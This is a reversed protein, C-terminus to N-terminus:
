QGEAYSPPADQPAAGWSKNAAPGMEFDLVGGNTLAAWDLWLRSHLQGNVRLQQVYPAQATAGKAKIVLAKGNPRQLTVQEFLPGTITFGSEGPLYPYLGLASFVYLASMAGGDDDGPLGDPTNRFYDHAIRRTQYQAKWPAQLYNYAYVAGFCPENGLWYHPKEPAWGTAITAVFRDLRREVAARGGARAVLQGFSHPVSWFYQTANGENYGKTTTSDFPALFSGDANRSQIFGTTPNFLHFVNQSRHRYFAAAPADGAAQCLKAIAYDDIGYEATMSTGLDNKDVPVYGLRQYEDLNLWGHKGQCGVYTTSVKKMMATVAPLDFDTAGMAYLNAIFPFPSYGNMVGYERNNMSWNPFAGGQQADLLLSRVMDSAERPALLAQLPATTCYTDWLSFNVYKSHGKAIRHPRFDFGQYEGNVDEFVNPQLLNHYVATYFSAREDATGGAQITLQNLHRSWEARTRRLAQALDWGPIETRANLRANEVSVFSIATKLRVKRGKLPGFTLYAAMNKGSATDADPHKRDGQWTGHGAIPADFEIVFYVTYPLYAPDRWCFGGTTIQGSLTRRAADIRLAGASIGNASNTPEFVFNAPADGGFVLEGIAARPRAAFRATAHCGPLAVEYFGPSARETAHSFTSVYAERHGIPSAPLNGTVPMFLLDQMAHCGVGSFHTLGFGRIKTQAYKYGPRASADDYDKFTTNPSVSLMGFPAQAGPYANGEAGTGIFPNVYDIPVQQASGSLHGVLLAAALLRRRARNVCSFVPM